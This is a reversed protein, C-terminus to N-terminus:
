AIHEPKHQNAILLPPRMIYRTSPSDTAAVACVAATSYGARIDFLSGIVFSAPTFCRVPAGTEKSPWSHCLLCYHWISSSLIRFVSSCRARARPAVERVHTLDESLHLRTLIKAPMRDMHASRLDIHPSCSCGYFELNSREDPRDEATVTLGFHLQRLRM